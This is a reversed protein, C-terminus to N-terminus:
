GNQLCFEKFRPCPSIDRRVCTANVDAIGPFCRGAAPLVSGSSGSCILYAEKNEVHRTETSVM